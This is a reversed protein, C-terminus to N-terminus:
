SCARLKVDNERDWSEETTEVPGGAEVIGVNNHLVLHLSTFGLHLSKERLGKFNDRHSPTFSKM